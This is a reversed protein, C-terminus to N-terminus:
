LRGTTTGGIASCRAMASTSPASSSLISLLLRVAFAARATRICAGGDVPSNDGRSWTASKWLPPASV